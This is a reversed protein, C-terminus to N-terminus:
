MNNGKKTRSYLLNKIKEIQLDEVREFVIKPKKIKHGGRVKLTKLEQIRQEEIKEELNLLNWIESAKLPIYPYLLVSLVRVANASLYLCTKDKTKWPAKKQFYSNAKFSFELIRKLAKDLLNKKISEFVEEGVREIEEKFESDEKDFDEVEPVKGDFNEWIFKLVRNVFNGVNAILENNIKEQFTSLSFNVDKQSYPIISALYFRLYDPHFFELFEKITIYWGRSKSFKKNELLLHGRTPIFDPLKFTGEAMREAPMFLYHHYVIDKGIFHYIKASNWFKIGDIGKDKCYKLVFSIYGIHNEFWGYLVKGKAEELPIPVGWSIDRTIDWDKLGEEIWKLVYNKIDEQLNENKMLWEKLKESFASLKFFYHVSKKIVPFSGCVACKPNKLQTPEYTRGCVECSDGYQDKAGCFPCTGKVYRDPLFKDCKPCFFQEIEKKYIYEREYIKLFFEQALKRNEESHTQYYIDFRIGVKDFDEKQRKHWYEVYEEPTKGEQEAKILIPTGYDDGGCAFVVNKGALRMFRAFIDAPLYTSALHGLHLEGNSYPLASTVIINEEKFKEGM